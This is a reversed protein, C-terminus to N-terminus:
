RQQVEYVRADILEQVTDNLHAVGDTEAVTKAVALLKNARNKFPDCVKPCISPLQKRLQMRKAGEWVESFPRDIASGYAAGGPRPHYNCPYLNGDSGIAAMLNTISCSSFTRQMESPDEMRHIRILKFSDTVLDSEIRNILEGAIRRDESSLPRENSNDQKLRLSDVGVERLLAAAEYVEHYNEPYMIFSANIEIPAQTERRRQVLTRLNSIAKMFRAEGALRGGFKLRAYTQPTAADISVHVYATTLITEIAEEDMLAGNSFMGVRLGRGVLFRMAQLVSQKAVLPEGILGSFSVNHVRFEVEQEAGDVLVPARVCYDAIGRVVKMMNEPNILNDPLVEQATKAADLIALERDNEDWIQIPVHDGICWVCRLNCRSSPHILVEYPPLVTGDLTAAFLTWHRRLVDLENFRGPLDPRVRDLLLQKATPM